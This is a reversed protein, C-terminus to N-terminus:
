ENMYVHFAWQVLHALLRGLTVQETWREAQRYVHTGKQHSDLYFETVHLLPFLGLQNIYMKLM